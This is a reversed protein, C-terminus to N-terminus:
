LTETVHNCDILIKPLVHDHSLMLVFFQPM